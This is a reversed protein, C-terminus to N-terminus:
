LSPVYKQIRHPKCPHGWDDLATMPAGCGALTREAEELTLHQRFGHPRGDKCVVVFIEGAQPRSDNFEDLVKKAEM